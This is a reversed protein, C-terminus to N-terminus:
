VASEIWGGGLVRDGDYFVVAQGPTVASDPEGFEVRAGGDPLATVLAAVPKARYRIKASCACRSPRRSTSCGTSGRPWCAPRWCSKATASSWRTTAPVIELVYRREGAAFGLGKRQGITFHEIGDHEALVKGARTSSTAPRRGARAPPPPDLEAHDDDPVFCIEVSDPKDAVRCARRAPWAASRTRATAASRSSCTRCSARRLGFLVYSQDKDPDVAATCSTGATASSSAPRLPRHRHLRRRAAQRVGLAQRVEALQQLRRVPEAHPGGPVRRRLLRHHPRLGARFRPRLVPHRAPRRRPPRRRRRPRQLLGEQPRPQTTTAAGHEGTRMFLGIVEYGQQKLLYAAVSSDVGGSMALVVRAMRKLIAAPRHRRSGASRRRAVKDSGAATRLIAQGHWGTVKTQDQMGMQGEHAMGLVVVEEFFVPEVFGDGLGVNREQLHHVPRSRSPTSQRSVMDTVGVSAAM